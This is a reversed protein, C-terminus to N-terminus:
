IGEFASTPGTLGNPAGFGGYIGGLAGGQGGLISSLLAANGVGTLGGSIANTAGLTGSAQANGIAGITQAQANGSNIAGGALAQGSQAGTNVLNQLANVSNMYYTGALGQNYQSIATSLPGKSGGLGQAALANQTAQTGYQSQFQFGPLTELTSTQSPGPTALANLTPLANQGATVYPNLANQATGFMSQQQALAAKEASAQTNAASKAGLANIGGGIIAGGGAIAAAAGAGIPM